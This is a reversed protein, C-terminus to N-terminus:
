CEGGGVGGGTRIGRAVFKSIHQSTKILDLILYNQKNWYWTMIIIKRFRRYLIPSQNSSHFSSTSMFLVFHWFLKKFIIWASIDLVFPRAQKLILARVFYVESTKTRKVWWFRSRVIPLFNERWHKFVLWNLASLLVAGSSVATSASSFIINGTNGHM